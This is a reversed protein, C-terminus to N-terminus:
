IGKRLFPTQIDSESIIGKSKVYPIRIFLELDAAGDSATGNRLICERGDRLNITERYEM